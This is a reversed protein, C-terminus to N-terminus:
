QSTINKTTTKTSDDKWRNGKDTSHTSSSEVSKVFHFIRAHQIANRHKNLNCAFAGFASINEAATQHFWIFDSDVLSFIQKENNDHGDRVAMNLAAYVCLQGCIKITAAEACLRKKDTRRWREHQTRRSSPSPLNNKRTVNILDRSNRFTEDNRKEKGNESGWRLSGTQPVKHIKDRTDKSRM